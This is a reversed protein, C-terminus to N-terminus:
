DAIDLLEYLDHRKQQTLPMNKRREEVEAFDLEAYIIDPAHETTALVQIPVYSSLTTVNLFASTPVKFGYKAALVPRNQLCVLVFSTVPGLNM